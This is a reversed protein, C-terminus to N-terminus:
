TIVKVTIKLKISQGCILSSPFISDMLDYSGFTHNDDEDYLLGKVDRNWYGGEALWDLKSKIGWLCRIGDSDKTAFIKM